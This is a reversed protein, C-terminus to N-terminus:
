YTFPILDLIKRVERISGNFDAQKMAWNPSDYDQMATQQRMLEQERHQLIHTLQKFAAGAATLENTRAEKAPTGSCDRYWDASRSKKLQM